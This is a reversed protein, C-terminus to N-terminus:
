TMGVYSSDREPAVNQIVAAESMIGFDLTWIGLAM